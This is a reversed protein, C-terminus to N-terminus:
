LSLIQEFISSFKPLFQQTKDVVCSQTQMSFELRNDPMLALLARPLVGAINKFLVTKSYRLM